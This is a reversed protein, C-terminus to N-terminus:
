LIAVKLRTSQPPRPDAAPPGSAKVASDQREFGGEGDKSGTGGMPCKHGKKLV